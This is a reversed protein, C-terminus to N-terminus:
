ARRRRQSHVGLAKRNCTTRCAGCAIAWVAGDPIGSKQLTAIAVM